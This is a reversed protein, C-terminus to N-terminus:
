KWKMKTWNENSHTTYTCDVVIQVCVCVCSGAKMIGSQFYDYLSHFHICKLTIIPTTYLIYKSVYFITIKPLKEFYINPNTNKLTEHQRVCVHHINTPYHYGLHLMRWCTSYIIQIRLITCTIYLELWVDVM